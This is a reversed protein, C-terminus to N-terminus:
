GEIRVGVLMTVGLNRHAKAIEKSVDVDENPLVRQLSEIVTVAVGYNALV